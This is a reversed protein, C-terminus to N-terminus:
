PAETNLIIELESVDGVEKKITESFM